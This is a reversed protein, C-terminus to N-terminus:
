VTESRGPRGPPEGPIDGMELNRELNPPQQKPPGWWWKDRSFLFWVNFVLMKKLFSLWCDCPHRGWKGRCERNWSSEKFSVGHFQFYVCVCVSVQIRSQRCPPLFEKCWMIWSCTLLCQWQKIPAWAGEALPVCHGCDTNQEPVTLLTPQELPVEPWDCKFNIKLFLIM